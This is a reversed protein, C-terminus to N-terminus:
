GNSEMRKNQRQKALIYCSIADRFAGEDDFPQNLDCLDLDDAKGHLTWRRDSKEIKIPTPDGAFEAVGEGEDATYNFPGVTARRSVLRQLIYGRGYLAVAVEGIWFKQPEDILFSTRLDRLQRFGPDYEGAVIVDRSDIEAMEIYQRLRELNGESAVVICRAVRGKSRGVKELMTIAEPVEVPPFDTRIRDAIDAEV